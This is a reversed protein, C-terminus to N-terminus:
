RDEVPIWEDTWPVFEQIVKHNDPKIYNHAVVFIIIQGIDALDFRNLWEKDALHHLWENSVFENFDIRYMPPVKNNHYPLFDNKVIDLTKLDWNVCSTFNSGQPTPQQLIEHMEMTRFEKNSM